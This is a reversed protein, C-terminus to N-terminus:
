TLSLSKNSSVAFIDPTTEPEKEIKEVYAELEKIVKDEDSEGLVFVPYEKAGEIRIKPARTQSDSNYNTFFLEGGQITGESIGNSTKDLEPIVIENKGNQLQFTKAGGHQTMT